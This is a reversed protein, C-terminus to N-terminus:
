INRPYFLLIMPSHVHMLYVNNTDRTHLHAICLLLSIISNYHFGVSSWFRCHVISCDCWVSNWILCLYYDLCFKKKLKVSLSGSPDSFFLNLFKLVINLDKLFFRFKNIKLNVWRKHDAISNNKFFNEGPWNCPEIM